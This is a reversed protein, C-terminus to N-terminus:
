AEDERRVRVSERITRQNDEWASTSQVIVTRRTRQRPRASAADDGKPEAAAPAARTRRRRGATSAPPPTPAPFQASVAARVEDDSSDPGLGLVERLKALIQWLEEKRQNPIM